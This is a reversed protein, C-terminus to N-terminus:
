YPQAQLVKIGNGGRRTEGFAFWLNHFHVSFNKVPESPSSRWLVSSIRAKKVSKLWEIFLRLNVVLSPPPISSLPSSTNRQIPRELITALLSIKKWTTILIQRFFIDRAWQRYSLCFSGSPQPGYVSFVRRFAILPALGLTVQPRTLYSLNRSWAQVPTSFLLWRLM